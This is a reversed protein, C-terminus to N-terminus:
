FAWPKIKPNLLGLAGDLGGDVLESSSPKKHSVTGDAIKGGVGIGIQAIGQAGKEALDGWLKSQFSTLRINGVAGSAVEKTTAIGAREFAQGFIERMLEKKEIANQVADKDLLDIGRAKFGELLAAAYESGFTVFAVAIVGGYPGALLTGATTAITKSIAQGAKVALIEGPSEILVGLIDGITEAHGLNRMAPSGPIQALRVQAAILRRLNQDTRRAITDPWLHRGRIIYEEQANLKEGREAKEFVAIVRERNSRIDTLKGLANSSQIQRWQREIENAMIDSTDLNGFREDNLMEKLLRSQATLREPDVGFMAIAEQAEALQQRDDRAIADRIVRVIAQHHEAAARMRLGEEQAKQPHTLILDTTSPAVSSGRGGPKVPLGLAPGIGFSRQSAPPSEGSLAEKGAKAAVAEAQAKAAEAAQRREYARRGREAARLAAGIPTDAEPDRTLLTDGQAAIAGASNNAGSDVRRGDPGAAARWRRLEAM